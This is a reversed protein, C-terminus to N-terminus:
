GGAISLGTLGTLGTLEALGVAGARWQRGVCGGIYACTHSFGHGQYGNHIEILNTHGGGVDRYDSEISTGDHRRNRDVGYVGIDATTSINWWWPSSGAIHGAVLKYHRGGYRPPRIQVLEGVGTPECSWRGCRPLYNSKIPTKGKQPNNNIMHIKVGGRVTVRSWSRHRGFV